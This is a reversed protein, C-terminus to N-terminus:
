GSDSDVLSRDGRREEGVEEESQEVTVSSPPAMPLAPIIKRRRLVRRDTVSSEMTMM